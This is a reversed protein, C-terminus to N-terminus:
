ERRQERNAGWVGECKKAHFASAVLLPFWAFFVIAVGINGIMENGTAASLAFVFLVIAALVLLIGIMAGLRTTTKEDVNSAKRMDTENRDDEM